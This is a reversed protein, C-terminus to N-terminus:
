LMAVAGEGRAESLAAKHRSWHRDKMWTNGRSRSAALMPFIPNV